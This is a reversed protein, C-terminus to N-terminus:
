ISVTAWVIIWPGFEDNWDRVQGLALTKAEWCRRRLASLLFPKYTVGGYWSSPILRINPRVM